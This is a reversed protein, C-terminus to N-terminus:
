SALVRIRDILLAQGRMVAVSSGVAVVDPKGDGDLDGSAFLRPSFSLTAVSGAASFSGQASGRYLIVSTNNLPSRAVLDPLGDANFDAIALTPAGASFSLGLGPLTQAAVFSGDGKGLLFQIITQADGNAGFIGAASLGVVLDLIGDGNVDTANLADAGRIGAYSSAESFTGNGLGKFITIASRGSRVAADLFGDGDFDGVALTRGDVLVPNTFRQAAAGFTGDGAGPLWYGGASLIDLHADGNFDALVFAGLSMTKVAVSGAVFTGNSAGLLTVVTPFDNGSNPAGMAVIDLKGDGNIDEISARVYFRNINAPYGGYVSVAGFSGDARSLYVGVGSTNNASILPTVLDAIGDGNFDGAVLTHAANASALVTQSVIAGSTGIKLVTIKGSDDVYAAISSGDSLRGLHVYNTSPTGLSRNSCGKPFTGATGSLGALQHLYADVNPLTAVISSSSGYAGQVGYSVAYQTLSCNSERVLLAAGPDTSSVGTGGLIAVQNGFFAATPTFSALALAGGAPAKPTKASSQLSGALILDQTGGSSIPPNYTANPLLIALRFDPDDKSCGSLSFLLMVGVLTPLALRLVTHSFSALGLVTFGLPAERRGAEFFFM